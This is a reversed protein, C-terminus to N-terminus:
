NHEELNLCWTGKQGVGEALSAQTEDLSSYNGNDERFVCKEYWEASEVQWTTLSEPSCIIATGYKPEMTM